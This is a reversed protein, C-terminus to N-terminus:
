SFVRIYPPLPPIKVTSPPFIYNKFFICILLFVAMLLLFSIFNYFQTLICKRIINYFNDEDRYAKNFSNLVVDECFSNGDSQM